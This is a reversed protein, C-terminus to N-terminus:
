CRWIPTGPCCCETSEQARGDVKGVAEEQPIFGGCLQSKTIHIHFYVSERYKILDYLSRAFVPPALDFSLFPGAQVSLKIEM